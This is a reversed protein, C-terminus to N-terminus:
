ISVIKMFEEFNKEKTMKTIKCWDIITLIGFCGGTLLKLVGIGTDGLMFRDVGLGGVLLSIILMTTPNKFEASSLMLFKDDDLTLLKEKIMPIATVDFNKQNQMMFMDVKQSDM